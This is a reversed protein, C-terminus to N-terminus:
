LNVSNMAYDYDAEKEANTAADEPFLFFYSSAFLFFFNLLCVM